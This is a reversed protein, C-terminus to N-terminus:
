LAERASLTGVSVTDADRSIGAGDQGEILRFRGKPSSFNVSSGTAFQTRTNPSVEILVRGNGDAVAPATIIQFLTNNISLYDGGVLQSAAGAAWGGVSITQSYPFATAALTRGNLNKGSGHPQYLFTGTAGRLSARWATFAKANAESMPNFGLELSWEAFNNVTVQNGSFPSIMIGQNHALRLTETSAVVPPPNIPYTTV